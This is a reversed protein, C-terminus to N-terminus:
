IPTLQLPHSVASQSQAQHPKMSIVYLTPIWRRPLDIRTDQNFHQDVPTLYIHMCCKIRAQDIVTALRIGCSHTNIIGLMYARHCCIERYGRKQLCGQAGQMIRMELRRILNRVWTSKVVVVLYAIIEPLAYVCCHISFLLKDETLVQSFPGYLLSISYLESKQHQFPSLSKQHGGSVRSVNRLPFSHHNRKLM